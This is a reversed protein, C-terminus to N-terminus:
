SVLSLIEKWHGNVHFRVFLAMTLDVMELKKSVVLYKRRFRAFWHRQRGNNREIFVTQSKSQLLYEEPVTETYVSYEDACFLEVNWKKLRNWLTLFTKKDRGGCKWDILEGAERCYAKWIWLQNKSGLYHWMEDLEVIIADKPVPKEYNVIANMSLGLNYLVVAFAKESDAYGRPTLRTFQFSCKKCKLRQKENIKGNKVVEACKCKPCSPNKNMPLPLCSIYLTM